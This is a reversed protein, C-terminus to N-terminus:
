HTIGFLKEANEWTEEAVVDPEKGLVSAITAVTDAIYAPENRRGRHPVPALYPADTEVVLRDTPIYPLTSRLVSNKFTVIGNIGIYFDGVAFIRDLEERSGGFSHFVGRPRKELNGLVELTEDLGDRCHIIIPLDKEVAWVCQQAFAEMQEAKFSKDWYLDIGIEGIAHFNGDEEELLQRITHLSDRWNEGVETPHLGIALLTNAPYTEHLATMPRITNLDVNPLMMMEVGAALARDMVERRDLDFEELYVHTHTDFIRM